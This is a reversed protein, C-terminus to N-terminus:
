PKMIKKKHKSKKKKKKRWKYCNKVLVNWYFKIKKYNLSM